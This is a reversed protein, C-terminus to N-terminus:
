VTKCKLYNDKEIQEANFVSQKNMQKQINCDELYIVHYGPTKKLTSRQKWVTRVIFTHDDRKVQMSCHHHLGDTAEKTRWNYNLCGHSLIHRM